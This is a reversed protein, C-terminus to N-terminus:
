RASTPGGEGAPVPEARERSPLDGQDDPRPARRTRRARWRDLVALVVPAVLLPLVTDLQIRFRVNGYTLLTTIVVAALMAGCPLLPVRQRRLMVAGAIGVLALVYFSWQAARSAVKGRNEVFDAYVIGESPRYVEFTRGLRAPLVIWLRDTNDGVFELSEERRLTDIESEDGLRDQSGDRFTRCLVTGAKGGFLEPQADPERGAAINDIEQACRPDWLGLFSGEYTSECNAVALVSGLGTSLYVPEEFRAFNHVVLPALLAVTVGGAVLVRRVREGAPVRDRRYFLLLPGVLLPALLLAEARTLATLALAFGLAVAGATSPRRIYRYSLWVLLAITTAFLTESMLLGDNVWLAPYLAAVIAAAIGVRESVMERGALGIFTVTLTGLLATAISHSLTSTGGFVSFVSLFLPYLPPHAASQIKTGFCEFQYPEVFWHGDAIANSQYHYYFADGGPGIHTLEYWIVYGIRLALAGVTVVVLWFTFGRRRPGDDTAVADVPSNV